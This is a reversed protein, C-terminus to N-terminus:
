SVGSLLTLSGEPMHQLLQYHLKRLPPTPEIGLEVALRQRLNEYTTLADEQRGSQYMAIMMLGHLRERYPHQETMAQWGVISDHGSGLSVAAALRNEWATGRQEQLWTREAAIVGTACDVDSFAVSDRWLALAQAWVHVAQAPEGQLQLDKASATLEMFQRSDIVSEATNLLYGGHTLQIVRAGFLRRLQHVYVHVAKRATKPPRKGWLVEMITSVAIPRDAQALLIALLRHLM